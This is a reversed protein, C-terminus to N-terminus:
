GIAYAPQCPRNTIRKQKTKRRAGQVAPSSQQQAAKACLQAGIAVKIGLRADPRRPVQDARVANRQAIFCLNVVRRQHGHTRVGNNRLLSVNAAGGMVVVIRRKRQDRIGHRQTSVGPHACASRNRRSHVHTLPRYERQARYCRAVQFWPHHVGPHRRKRHLLAYPGPMCDRLSNSEVRLTFMNENADATLTILHAPSICEAIGRTKLIELGTVATSVVRTAACM